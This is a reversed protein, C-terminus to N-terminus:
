NPNLSRRIRNFANFLDSIEAFKLSRHSKQVNDPFSALAMLLSENHINAKRQAILRTFSTIVKDTSFLEEILFLDDSMWQKFIDKRFIKTKAPLEALSYNSWRRRMESYAVRSFLAWDNLAVILFDIEDPTLANHGSAMVLFERLWSREIKVMQDTYELIGMQSRYRSAAHCIESSLKLEQNLSITKGLWLKGINYLTQLRRNGQRAADYDGQGIKSKTKNLEETHISEFEEYSFQHYPPPMNIRFSPPWILYDDDDAHDEIKCIRTDQSWSISELDKFGTISLFKFNGNEDLSSVEPDDNNKYLLHMKYCHYYERYYAKYRDINVSGSIRNQSIGTDVWILSIIGCLIIIKYILSM